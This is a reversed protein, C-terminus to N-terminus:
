KENIKERFKPGPIFAPQVSPPLVMMEKTIPNYCNRQGYPRPIFKGFGHFKVETNNKLCEGVVNWLTKMIKEVVEADIETENAINKIIESQTM